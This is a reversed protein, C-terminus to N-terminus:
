QEDEKEEAEFAMIDIAKVESEPKSLPQNVIILQQLLNVYGQSDPTEADFLRNLKARVEIGKVAASFAGAKRAETSIEEAEKLLNERSSSASAFAKNNERQLAKQINARKLMKCGNVRATTLKCGLHAEAYAKTANGTKLYESVFVSEFPKLRDRRDM